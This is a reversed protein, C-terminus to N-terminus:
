TVSGGPFGPRNLNRENVMEYYGDPRVYLTARFRTSCGHCGIWGDWVGALQSVDSVTKPTLITTACGAVAVTFSLFATLFLPVSRPGEGDPGGADM